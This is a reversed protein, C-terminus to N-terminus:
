RSTPNAPSSVDYVTAKVSLLATAVQAKTSSESSSGWVVTRKGRLHLTISDPSTASIHDLQARLAPTLAAAVSALDTLLRRDDSAEVTVLGAQPASAEHIVLGQADSWVYRGADRRQLIPRRETVTIVISHPWSRAVHVQDVARLTAARRAIARTEQRAVPVGLPVAARALVEDRTLLSTGRVEVSRTAFVPSWGVVWVLALVVALALAILSLRRARRRRDRSRRRRRALTADAISGPLAAVGTAPRPTSSRPRSGAM